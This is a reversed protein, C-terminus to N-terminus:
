WPRFWQGHLGGGQVIRLRDGMRPKVEDIYEVHEPYLLEDDCYVLPV